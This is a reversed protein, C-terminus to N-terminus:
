RGKSPLLGSLLFGGVAAIGIMAWPKRAFYSRWDAVDRVKDQLQNINEALRQREEGIEKVIEATRQDM